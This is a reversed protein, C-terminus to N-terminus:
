LVRASPNGQCIATPFNLSGLRNLRIAGQASQAEAIMTQQMIMKQFFAAAISEESRKNLRFVKDASPQNCKAVFVLRESSPAAGAMIRGCNSLRASHISAIRRDAVAIKRRMTRAVRAPASQRSSAATTLRECIGLM